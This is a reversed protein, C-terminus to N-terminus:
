LSLYRLTWLEMAQEKEVESLNSKLIRELGAFYQKDTM